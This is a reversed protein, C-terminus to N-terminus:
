VRFGLARSFHPADHRQLKPRRLSMLCGRVFWSRWSGLSAEFLQPVGAQSGVHAMRM